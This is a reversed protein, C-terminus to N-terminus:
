QSVSGWWKRRAMPNEVEARGNGGEYREKRGVRRENRDHMRRGDLGKRGTNM